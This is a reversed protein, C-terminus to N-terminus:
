VGTPTRYQLSGLVQIRRELRVAARKASPPRYGKERDSAYWRQNANHGFVRRSPGGGIAASWLLGPPPMMSPTRSGRRIRRRRLTPPIRQRSGAAAWMPNGGSADDQFEHVPRCQRAGDAWRDRVRIGEIQPQNARSAAIIDADGQLMLRRTGFDISWGYSWGGCGAPARWYRDNRELIVARATGNPSGSRGTGNARSFLAASEPREPNNLRALRRRYRGLRGARHGVAEGGHVLDGPDVSRRSPQHLAISITRDKVRIAARRVHLADPQHGEADRTTDVGLIPSLLLGSPRTRDMFM